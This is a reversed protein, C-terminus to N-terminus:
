SLKKDNEKIKSIYDGLTVEPYTISILTKLKQLFEHDSLEIWKISDYAITHDVGRSESEAIMANKYNPNVVIYALDGRYDSLTAEYVTQNVSDFVISAHYSEHESDLWRANPGYCKWGHESGGTIKYKIAIMFEQISIM